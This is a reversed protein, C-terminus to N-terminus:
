EERLVIDWEELINLSVKVNRRSEQKSIHYQKALSNIIAQESIRRYVLLVLDSGFEDLAYEIRDGDDSLKYVTVIRSSRKIKYEKNFRVLGSASPELSSASTTTLLVASFLGVVAYKLLTRNSHMNEFKLIESFLTVIQIGWYWFKPGPVIEKCRLGVIM